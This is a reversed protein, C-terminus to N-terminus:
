NLSELVVILGTTLLVSTLSLVGKLINFQKSSM